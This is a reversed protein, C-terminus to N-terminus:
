LKNVFTQKCVLKNVLRLPERNIFETSSSFDRKFETPTAFEREFETSTSFKDSIFTMPRWTTMSPLKADAETFVQRAPWRATPRPPPAAPTTLVIKKDIDNIDEDYYYDYDDDLFPM